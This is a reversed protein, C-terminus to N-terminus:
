PSYSLHLGWGGAEISSTSATAPCIDSPYMHCQQAQAGPAAPLPQGPQPTHPLSGPSLPLMTVPHCPLELQCPFKRNRSQLYAGRPFSTLTVNKGAPSVRVGLGAVPFTQNMRSGRHRHWSGLMRVEESVLVKIRRFGVGRWGVRVCMNLGHPKSPRFCSWLHTWSGPRALCLAPGPM